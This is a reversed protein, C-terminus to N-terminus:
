NNNITLSPASLQCRAPYYDFPQSVYTQSGICYCVICTEPWATLRGLKDLKLLRNWNFFNLKVLMDNWCLVTRHQFPIVTV